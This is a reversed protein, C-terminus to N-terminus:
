RKCFRSVDNTRYETMANARAALIQILENDEVLMVQAADQYAIETDDHPWFVDRARCSQGRGRGMCNGDALLIM